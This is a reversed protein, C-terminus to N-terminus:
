GKLADAMDANFKARAGEVAPTIFPHAPMKVTGFEVFFWYGAVLGVGAEYPGKPEIPPLIAAKPNLAQVGSVAKDYGSEDETAAYIGERLAGTRIPANEQAAVAIELATDRVVEKVRANIREGRKLFNNRNVIIGSPM